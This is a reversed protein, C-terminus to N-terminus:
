RVGLVSPDVLEHSSCTSEKLSAQVLQAQLTLLLLNIGANWHENENPRATSNPNCKLLGLPIQDPSETAMLKAVALSAVKLLQLKRRCPRMYPWPPPIEATMPATNISPLFLKPGGSSNAIALITSVKMPNVQVIM